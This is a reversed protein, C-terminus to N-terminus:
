IISDVSDFIVNKITLGGGVRLSFKDRRKNYVTVVDDVAMYCTGDDM